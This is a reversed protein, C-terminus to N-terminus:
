EIQWAKLFYKLLKGKHAGLITDMCKKEKVNWIKINQDELASIIIERARNITFTTVNGLDEKYLWNAICQHILEFIKKKANIDWARITKDGGATFVIDNSQSLVLTTVGELLCSFNFISM